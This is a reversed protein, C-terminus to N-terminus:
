LKVIQVDYRGTRVLIGNGQGNKILELFKQLANAVATYQDGIGCTGIAQKPTTHITVGYNPWGCRNDRIILRIPMNQIRTVM